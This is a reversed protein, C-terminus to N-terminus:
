GNCAGSVIAKIPMAESQRLRTVEAWDEASM